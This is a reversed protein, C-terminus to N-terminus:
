KNIQKPKGFELGSFLTLFKFKSKLFFFFFHNRLEIRFIVGEKQPFSFLFFFLFLFFPFIFDRIVLPYIRFLFFHNQWKDFVGLPLSGGINAVQGCGLLQRIAGV